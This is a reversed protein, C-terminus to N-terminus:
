LSDKGNPSSDEKDDSINSFVLLLIGLIMLGLNIIGGKGGSSHSSSSLIAGAILLSSGSIAKVINKM